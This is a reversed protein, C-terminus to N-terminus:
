VESMVRCCLLGAVFWKRCTERFAYNHDHCAPCSWDGPRGVPAAGACVCVGNICRRAAVVDICRGQGMQQYGLMAAPLFANAVAM